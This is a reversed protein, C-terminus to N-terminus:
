NRETFFIVSGYKIVKDLTAHFGDPNNRLHSATCFYRISELQERGYDYLSIPMTGQLVENVAERALDPVPVQLYRGSTYVSYNDKYTLVDTLTNGWYGDALQNMVTQAILYYGDYDWTPHAEAAVIQEFLLREKDSCDVAPEKPETVAPMWLSGITEDEIITTEITTPAPTPTAAIEAKLVELESQLQAAEIALSEQGAKIEKETKITSCIGYVLFIATLICLVTLVKLSIKNLKFERTM